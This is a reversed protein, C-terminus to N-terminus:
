ALLSGKLVEEYGGRKKLKGQMKRKWESEDLGVEGGMMFRKLVEENGTGKGRGSLSEKEQGRELKHIGEGWVRAARMLM